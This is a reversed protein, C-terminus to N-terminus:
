GRRARDVRRVSPDRRRRRPDPRRARRGGPRAPGPGMAPRSPSSWPRDAARRPGGRVRDAGRGRPRRVGEVARRAGDDALGAGARVARAPGSRANEGPGQAAPQSRRSIGAHRAPPSPTPAGGAGRTRRRVAGRHRDQGSPAHARSGGHPRGRRAARRGRVGPAGLSRGAAARPRPRLARRRGALAAQQPQPCRRDHPAERRGSPPPAAPEPKVRRRPPASGVTALWPRAPTGCSRCVRELDLNTVMRHPGRGRDAHTAGRDAGAPGHGTRDARAAGRRRATRGARRPDAAHAVRRAERSRRDSELATIFTVLAQRDQEIERALWAGDPADAWAAAVRAALHDNLYLALLRQSGREPVEQHGMTLRSGPSPRVRSARIRHAHGGGAGLGTAGCRRPVHEQSGGRHQFHKRRLGRPTTLPVTKTGTRAFGARTPPGACAERSGAKGTAARATFPRPSM